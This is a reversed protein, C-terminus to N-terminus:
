PQFSKVKRMLEDYSNFEIGYKGSGIYVNATNPFLKKGDKFIVFKIRRISNAGDVDYDYVRQSSTDWNHSILRMGYKMAKKKLLKEDYKAM